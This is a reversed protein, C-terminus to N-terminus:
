KYFKFLMLCGHNLLSTKCVSRCLRGRRVWGAGWRPGVGLGSPAKEQNRGPQRAESGVCRADSCGQPWLWSVRATPYSSSVSLMGVSCPGVLKPPEFM